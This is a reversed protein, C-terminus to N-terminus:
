SWICQKCIKARSKRSSYMKKATPRTPEVESFMVWFTTQTSSLSLRENRSSKSFAVPLAEIRYLYCVFRYVTGLYISSFLVNVNLPLLSTNFPEINTASNHKTSKYNIYDSINTPRAYFISQNIQVTSCNPLKELPLLQM